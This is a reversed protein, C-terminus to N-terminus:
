PVDAQAFAPMLPQDAELGEPLNLVTQVALRARGYALIDVGVERQPARDDAAIAARREGGAPRRAAVGAVGIIEARLPATLAVPLRDLALHDLALELRQEQGEFGGFGQELRGLRHEALEPVMPQAKLLLAAAREFALDPLDLAVKILQEIPDDLRVRRSHDPGILAPDPVELHPLEFHALLDRM